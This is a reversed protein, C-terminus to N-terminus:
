HRPGGVPPHDIMQCKVSSASCSLSIGDQMQQKCNDVSWMYRYYKCQELGTPQHSPMSAGPVCVSFARYGVDGVSLLPYVIVLWLFRHFIRFGRGNPFRLVVFPPFVLPPQTSWRLCTSIRIGWIAWSLCAYALVSAFVM